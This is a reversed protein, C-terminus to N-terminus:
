VYYIVDIKYIFGRVTHDLNSNLISNSSSTEIYFHLLNFSVQEKKSSISM